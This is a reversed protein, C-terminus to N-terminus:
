RCLIAGRRHPRVDVIAYIGAQFPTAMNTGKVTIADQYFALPQSSPPNFVVTYTNTQGPPIDPVSVAGNVVGPLNLSIWSNTPALLTVGQLPYLGNNAISIQGSVQNGRDVNVELYGAAPQTM